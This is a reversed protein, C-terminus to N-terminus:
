HDSDEEAMASAMTSPKTRTKRGGERDSANRLWEKIFFETESTTTNPFVRKVAQLIALCLKLAQFSMKGRGTWNFGKAFQNDLVGAMLRKTMLKVCSGGVNSLYDVLMRFTAKDCLRQEIGEVDELRKVPLVIGEPLEQGGVHGHMQQILTALMAKIERQDQKIEELSRLISIDRGTVIPQPRDSSIHASQQPSSTPLLPTADQGPRKSQKPTSMGSKSGLLMPSDCKTGAPISIKPPPSPMVTDSDKTTTLTVLQRKTCTDRTQSEEDETDSDLFRPNPRHKRKQSVSSQRVDADTQLDSEEEAEKAKQQAKEFSDTQYMLRRIACSVWTDEPEAHQKVAMNLKASSKMPPWLVKKNGDSEDTLWNESVIAVENTAFEVVVYKSMIQGLLIM